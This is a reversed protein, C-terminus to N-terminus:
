SGEKAAFAVCTTGGTTSSAEPIWKPLQPGAQSVVHQAELNRASDAQVAVPGWALSATLGQIQTGM